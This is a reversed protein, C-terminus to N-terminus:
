LSLYQSTYKKEKKEKRKKKREMTERPSFIFRLFLPNEYHANYLYIPKINIILFFFSSYFSLFFFLCKKSFTIGIPKSLRKNASINKFAKNSALIISLIIVFINWKLSM